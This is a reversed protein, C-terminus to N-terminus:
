EKPLLHSLSNFVQEPTITKTCEFHKETGKHLPCWFWDGSDFKHQTNNICGHCVDKNILRVTDESFENDETTVGSIMVVPKGLAHAVWSLGSSLGIFFESHNIYNTMQKLNMGNKKVCSKPVPNWNGETGFREHVDICVPTIGSKRLMRCLQDWGGEYNWHKSQATSHMSFCIYKSKIPRESIFADIKPRNWEKVDLQQAYGEMLPIDFKYVIEKYEDYEIGDIVWKNIDPVYESISNHPYIKKIDSYSNHFYEDSLNCIVSVEKNNKYRYSDIVSMAGITDGLSASSIRILSREM